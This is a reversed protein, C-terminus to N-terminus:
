RTLRRARRPLRVIEVTVPAIGAALMGLRRAAAESVDIIRNASGYPGRDNIQVRVSRNTARNTVRVIAGFPLTPHAATLARRDFPAGSATRRGHWRGGYWAADGSEVDGVRVAQTRRTTSGCSAGITLIVSAFAGAVLSSRRSPLLWNSQADTAM